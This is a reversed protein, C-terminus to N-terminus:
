SFVGLVIIVFLGVGVTAGLSRRTLQGMAKGLGDLHKDTAEARREVAGLRKFETKLRKDVLAFGQKMAERHDMIEKELRAMGELLEAEHPSPPSAEKEALWVDIHARISESIRELQEDGLLMTDAADERAPSLGKRPARIATNPALTGELDPKLRISKFYDPENGIKWKINCGVSAKQDPAITKGSLLADAATRLDQGTVPLDNKPRSDDFQGRYVLKHEEDFLFFDPTCAARYAKAVAQTEDLLYPFTYGLEEVEEAMKEPSDDPYNEIDNANIAVIALGKSQYERAFEALATRLHRVYPCHNCMFIVLLGAADKFNQRSVPDGNVDPLSFDPAVTGLELMTSPTMAM